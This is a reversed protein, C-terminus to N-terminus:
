YRHPCHVSAKHDIQTGSGLLIQAFDVVIVQIPCSWIQWAGPGSPPVNTFEGISSQDEPSESFETSTERPQM